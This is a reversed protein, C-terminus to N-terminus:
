RKRAMRLLALESDDRLKWEIREEPSRRCLDQFSCNTCIGSRSSVPPFFGGEALRVVESANEMSSDELETLDADGLEIVDLPKEPRIHLYAMGVQATSDPSELNARVLSRYICPQYLIGNEIADKQSKERGMPKGTKVDAVLLSGDPKRLLLDIRGRVPLEGFTGELKM